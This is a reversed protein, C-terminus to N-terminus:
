RASRLFREGGNSDRGVVGHWMSLGRKMVDAQYEFCTRGRETVSCVLEQALLARIGDPASLWSLDKKSGWRVM